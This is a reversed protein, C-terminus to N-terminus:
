SLSLMNAELRRYFLCSDSMEPIVFETLRAAGHKGGRKVPRGSPFIWGGTEGDFKAPPVFSVRKGESRLGHNSVFCPIAAAPMETRNWTFEHM